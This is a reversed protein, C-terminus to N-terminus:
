ANSAALGADVLSPREDIARQAGPSLAAERGAVTGTGAGTRRLSLRRGADGACLPMRCSFERSRGCGATKWRRPLEGAPSRRGEGHQAVACRVDPDAGATRTRATELSRRHERGCAEMRYLVARHDM